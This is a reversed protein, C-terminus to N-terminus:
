REDKMETKTKHQNQDPGGECRSREGTELVGFCGRCWFGLASLSSARDGLKEADVLFVLLVFGLFLRDGEDKEDREDREDKM